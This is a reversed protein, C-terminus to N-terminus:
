MVVSCGFHRGRSGGGSGGRGRGGGSGGKAFVPADLEVDLSTVLLPSAGDLVASM